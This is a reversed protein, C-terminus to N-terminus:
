GDTCNVNVARLYPKLTEISGGSLRMAEDLPRLTNRIYVPEGTATAGEFTWTYLIWEANTIDTYKKLIKDVM